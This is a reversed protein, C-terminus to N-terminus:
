KDKLKNGLISEIQEIKEHSVDSYKKYIRSFKLISGIFIMMAVIFIMFDLFNNGDIFKYNFYFSVSLILYSAFYDFANKFFGAPKGKHIEINM